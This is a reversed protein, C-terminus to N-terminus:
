PIIATAHIFQTTTEYFLIKSSRGFVQNNILADQVNARREGCYYKIFSLLADFRFNSYRGSSTVMSVCQSGLNSRRNEHVNNAHFAIFFPNFRMIVKM